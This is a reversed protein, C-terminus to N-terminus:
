QGRSIAPKPNSGILPKGTPFVALQRMVCLKRSFGHQRDEFIM